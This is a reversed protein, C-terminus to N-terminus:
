AVRGYGDDRKGGGAGRKPLDQVGHRFYGVTLGIVNRRFGATMGCSAGQRCPLLICQTVQEVAGRNRGLLNGSEVVLRKFASRTYTLLANLDDSGPQPTVPVLQSSLGRRRGPRTNLLSLALEFPRDFVQALVAVFHPM